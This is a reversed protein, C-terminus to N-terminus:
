ALSAPRRGLRKRLDSLTERAAAFRGDDSEGKVARILIIAELGANSQTGYTELGPRSRSLVAADQLAKEARELRQDLIGEGNLSASASQQLALIKQRAQNLQWNARDTSLRSEASKSLEPSLGASQAQSAAQALHQQARDFDDAKLAQLLAELSAVVALGALAEKQGKDLELATQYAQRAQQLIATSLEKGALIRKATALAEAVRISVVEAEFLNAPVGLAVLPPQAAQLATVATDFDQDQRATVFEQLSQIARLAAKGVAHEADLARVRQLSQRARKRASSDLLDRSLLDKAKTLNWQIEANSISGRAKELFPRGLSISRSLKRTEKSQIRDRVADFEAQDLLTSCEELLAVLDSGASAAETEATLEPMERSLTQAEELLRDARSLTAPDFPATILDEAAQGLLKRTSSRTESVSRVHRAAALQRAVEELADNWLEANGAARRAEALADDAGAFNGKETMTMAELLSDSISRGTRARPLRM